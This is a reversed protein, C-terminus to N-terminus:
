PEFVQEFTATIDSVAPGQSPRDWAKCVVTLDASARPPRWTFSAAGSKGKLFAVIADAEANPCNRIIVTWVESVANIGDTSRQAYGDGYKVENVRATYAPKTENSVAWAFDAM